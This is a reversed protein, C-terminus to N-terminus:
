QTVVVTTLNYFNMLIINPFVNSTKNVIITYKNNETFYKSVKVKLLKLM